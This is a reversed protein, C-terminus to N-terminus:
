KLNCSNVRLFNADPIKNVAPAFCHLLSKGEFNATKSSLSDNASEYYSCIELFRDICM